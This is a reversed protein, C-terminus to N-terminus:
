SIFVVERAPPKRRGRAQASSFSGQASLAPDIHLMVLADEGDDYHAVKLDCVSFGLRAYLEQARVNSFRVNLTVPLGDACAAKILTRGIGQSQQTPHVAVHAVHLRDEFCQCLIYGVVARGMETDAVAVVGQSEPRVSFQLFKEWDWPRAFGAREIQMMPGLDSHWQVPRLSLRVPARNKQLVNEM